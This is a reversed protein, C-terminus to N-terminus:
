AYTLLWAIIVLLVFAGSAVAVFAALAIEYLAQFFPGRLAALNDPLSFAPSSVSPATRNQVSKLNVDACHHNTTHGADIFVSLHNRQTELARSLPTLTKAGSSAGSTM